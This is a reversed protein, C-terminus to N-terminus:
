VRATSHTKRNHRGTAVVLWGISDRMGFASPVDLNPHGFPHQGLVSAALRRGWPGCALAGLRSSEVNLPSEEQFRSAGM